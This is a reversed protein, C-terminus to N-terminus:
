PVLHPLFGILNIQAQAAQFLRFNPNGLHTRVDNFADNFPARQQPGQLVVQNGNLYTLGVVNDFGFLGVGGNANIWTQVNNFYTTFAQLYQQQNQPNSAAWIVLNPENMATALQTTTFAM